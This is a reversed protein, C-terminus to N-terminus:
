IELLLKKSANTKKNRALAWFGVSALLAFVTSGYLIWSLGNQDYLYGNALNGILGASATVAAFVSIGQTRFRNPVIKSIFEMAAAFYLCFTCGHLLQSALAIEVSPLFALLGWRLAYFLSAIQLVRVAGWRIVLSSAFYFFPLECLSSILTGLGVSSQSGGLDYIYIGFFSGYFSNAIQLLFCISLFLVFTRTFFRESFGSVKNSTVLQTETNANLKVTVSAGILYVIAAAVFLGSMSFGMVVISAIVGGVGFGLSGWLRYRGYQGSTAQVFQVTVGDLLPPYAHVFFLLVMMVTILLLHHHINVFLLSSVGSGILLIAMVATKRGFRDAVWGWLIPSIIGVVPLLGMATGIMIGSMGFNKLYLSLYPFFMGLAGYYLFYLQILRWKKRAEVETM